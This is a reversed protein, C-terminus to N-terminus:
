PLPHEALYVEYWEDHTLEVDAGQALERLHEPSTTGALPMMHAPHRLIWAVVIAAPTVGHAEALRRLVEDLRAHAPNGLFQERKSDALISWCQVTIDNLRCFDLVGGDRVCAYEDDMNVHIGEDVMWAHAPSFQLQDFVIPEGTYKQILRIQGPNMNSVGFWDVKGAHKLDSFAWAVEEPDMLADPRHILLSDLHDTHLRGLAEDVSKVIYDHSSEYCTGIRICTKTQLVMRDRLSPDHRLVEGFVSECAGAGYIDAHDFFTVGADLAARVLADVEQWSKSAVRMCGLGVASVHLTTGPIDYYRM